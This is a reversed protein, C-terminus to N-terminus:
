LLIEVEKVTDDKVLQLNYGNRKQELYWDYLRLASRVVEANTKAGSQIRIQSLREYAEPSFDLQLRHRPASENPLDREKEDPTDKERVAALEHSGMVEEKRGKAYTIKEPPAKYEMVDISPRGNGIIVSERPMDRRNVPKAVRMHHSLSASVRKKFEGPTLPEARTPPTRVSLQPKWRGYKSDISSRNVIRRVSGGANLFREGCISKINVTIEQSLRNFLRTDDSLGAIRSSQMLYNIDNDGAFYGSRIFSDECAKQMRLKYLYTAL